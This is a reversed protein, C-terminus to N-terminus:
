YHEAYFSGSLTAYAKSKAIDCYVHFGVSEIKVGNINIRMQDTNGTPTQGLCINKYISQGDMNKAKGKMVINAEKILTANNAIDYLTFGDGGIIMNGHNDYEIANRSKIKISVTNESPLTTYVLNHNEDYIEYPMKYTASFSHPNYKSFKINKDITNWSNFHIDGLWIDIYPTSFYMNKIKANYFNAKVQYSSIGKAYSETITLSDRATTYDVAHAINAALMMSIISLLKM